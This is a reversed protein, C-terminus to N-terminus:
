QLLCKGEEVFANARERFVQKLVVIRAVEVVQKKLAVLVTTKLGLESLKLHVSNSATWHRENCLQFLDELMALCTAVKVKNKDRGKKLGLDM